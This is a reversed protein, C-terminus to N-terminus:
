LTFMTQKGSEKPGFRNDKQSPSMDQDDLSATLLASTHRRRQVGRQQQDRAVNDCETLIGRQQSNM